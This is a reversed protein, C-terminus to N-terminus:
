HAQTPHPRVRKPEGSHPKCRRERGLTGHALPPGGDRRRRRRGEEEERRPGGRGWLSHTLRASPPPVTIAAAPLERSQDAALVRCRGGGRGDGPRGGARRDARPWRGPGGRLQRRRASRGPRPGVCLPRAPRLRRRRGPSPLGEGAAAPVRPSGSGAAPLSRLAPRRPDEPRRPPPAGPLGPATGAAVTCSGPSGVSCGARTPESRSPAPASPPPAPRAAPVDGTV